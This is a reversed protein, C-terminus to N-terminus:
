GPRILSPAEQADARALTRRKRLHLKIDEPIGGLLALAAAYVVAGVAMSLVLQETMRLGLLALAMVTAALVPRFIVGAEFCAGTSCVVSAVVLLILGEAVVTSAAAGAIGWVPILLFNLVVNVATAAAVIRLQISTRDLVLLVSRFHGSLFVFGISLILLRFAATGDLYAPGFLRRLLPGALIIGGIVLPAGLAASFAVAGNTTEALAASGRNAARVFTPLYSTHIAVAIAMLVFCFRYPAVYLGVSKEGLLFGLLLVDFNVILTRLIKSVLVNGSGRLVRLGERFHWRVPGARLILVALLGAAIAEGVFQVVPVLVVDDRRRIFLFVLLVFITQGLIMAIAVPRNRELGKYAWSTDLALTIFSLGVLAMVVKTELSKDIWWAVLVMGAMALLAFALRVLIVSAAIEAVDRPRRAVERTAMSNSGGTAVLKWYSGLAMAFGIMGFGAPGLQRSIYATGAFAILRSVVDGVSLSFVSGLVKARSNDALEHRDFNTAPGQM